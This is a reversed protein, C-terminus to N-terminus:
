ESLLATNIVEMGKKRAYNVTYGTGSDARTMYAVCVSSHDALHRNRRYYIGPTYKGALVVVKSAREKLRHYQAIEAPTWNREMKYQEDFPLVLILHIHPYATKLKLVTESALADFGRAGGAGFYRYGKQILGEVTETLRQEMEAIPEKLERHGTFCATEAKM